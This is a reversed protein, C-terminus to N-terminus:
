SFLYEYTPYASPHMGLKRSCAAQCLEANRRRGLEPDVWEIFEREPHSADRMHIFYDYDGYRPKRDHAIRPPLPLRYLATGRVGRDLLEADSDLVLQEFTSYQLAIARQDANELAAIDQILLEHDIIQFYRRKDFESGQLYYHGHGDPWIVAMRGTDDHLVGPQGEAVRVVPSPELIATRHMAILWGLGCRAAEAVAASGMGAQRCSVAGIEGVTYRFAREARAVAHRLVLAHIDVLDLDQVVRSRLGSLVDALRADPKNHIALNVAEDLNQFVVCRTGEDAGVSRYFDM